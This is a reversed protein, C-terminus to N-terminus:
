YQASEDQGVPTHQLQFHDQACRTLSFSGSTHLLRRQGHASEGQADQHLITDHSFTSEDLTNHDVDTIDLHVEFDDDHRLGLASLAETIEVKYLRDFWWPMEKDGGLLGINGVYYPEGAVSM